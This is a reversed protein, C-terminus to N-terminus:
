NLTRKTPKYVLYKDFNNKEYWEDFSPIKEMKCHSYDRDYKDLWEILSMTDENRMKIFCVDMEYLDSFTGYSTKVNKVSENERQIENLVVVVNLKMITFNLSSYYQQRIETAFNSNNKLIGFTKSVKKRFKYIKLNQDTM